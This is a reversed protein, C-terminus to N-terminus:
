KKDKWIVFNEYESELVKVGVRKFKALEKKHEATAFGPCKIIQIKSAIDKPIPIALCENDALKKDAIAILRVEREYEWGYLKVLGALEKINLPNKLHNNVVTEAKILDSHLQKYAVGAWFVEAEITKETLKSNKVVRLKKYNKKGKPLNDVMEKADKYSLKLMVGNPKSAYMGYMAMNEEARSFCSYFVLNEGIFENINECEFADNMNQIAGLWICEGNVIKDATDINTYHYLYNEDKNKGGVRSLINLLYKRVELPNDMDKFARM